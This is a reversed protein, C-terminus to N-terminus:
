NMQLNIIVASQILVNAGTNQIVVPIGSMNAFSGSTIANTGTNVNQASNSATTGSLTMDNFTNHTNNTGGRLKELATSTMPEGFNESAPTATTTATTATIAIAEATEPAQEALPLQASAQWAFAALILPSMRISKM